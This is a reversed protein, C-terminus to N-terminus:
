PRPEEPEDDVLRGMGGCWDCGEGDCRPCALSSLSSGSRSEPQVPQSIKEHSCGSSLDPDDRHDKALLRIGIWVKRGDAKRQTLGRERLRTGFSKQTEAHEGSGDCWRTYARYLDSAGAEARKDFVCCEEFFMALVDMESRYAETADRVADPAGLGSSQWTLCGRVAWALIGTAEERLRGPLTPDQQPTKGTEPAHFTIDFPILRIRRWIAHDTGRIQPKHNTALWLKHTPQFEWFDERMRRCEIPDGGTLSKLLDEALRRGDGTESSSVFRKGYLTARETPHHEGRRAM